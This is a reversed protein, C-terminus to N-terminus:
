SMKKKGGDPVMYWEGIDGPRAGYLSFSSVMLSSLSVKGQKGGSEVWHLSWRSALPYSCGQHGWPTLCGLLLYGFGKGSGWVGVPHLSGTLGAVPTRTNELSPPAVPSGRHRRTTLGGAAPLSGQARRLEVRGQEQLFAMPPGLTHIQPGSSVPAVELLGPLLTRPM